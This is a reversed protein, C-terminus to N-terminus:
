SEYSAGRKALETFEQKQGETLVTIPLSTGCGACTVEFVSCKTSVIDKTDSRLTVQIHVPVLVASSKKCRCQKTL